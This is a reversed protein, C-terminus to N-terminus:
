NTREYTFCLATDAVAKICYYVTIIRSLNLM